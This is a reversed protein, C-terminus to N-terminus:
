GKGSTQPSAWPPGRRSLTRHPPPLSSPPHPPPPALTSSSAGHPESPPPVLQARTRRCPGSNKSQRLRSARRCATAGRGHTPRAHMTPPRGPDRRRAAAERTGGVVHETGSFLPPAGCTLFSPARAWSARFHATRFLSAAVWCHVYPVACRCLNAQLVAQRATPAARRRSMGAATAGSRRHMAGLGEQCAEAATAIATRKFQRTQSAHGATPWPRCQAGWQSKLGGPPGVAPDRGRQWM